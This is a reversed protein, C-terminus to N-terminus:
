DIGSLDLDPVPDFSLHAKGVINCVFNEVDSPPAIQGIITRNATITSSKVGFINVSRVRM